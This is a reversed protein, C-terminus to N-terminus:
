HIIVIKKNIYGKATQIRLIYYGSNLNSIDITDFTNNPNGNLKSLGNPHIVQWSLIKEVCDFYIISSAPNPYISILSSRYSALSNLILEKTLTDTACGNKAIVTIFDGNEAEDLIYSGDSQIIVQFNGQIIITDYNESSNILYIQDNKFEFEFSAKPLNDLTTTLTDM